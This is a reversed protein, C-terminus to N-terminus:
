ATQKFENYVSELATEMSSNAGTVRTFIKGLKQVTEVQAHSVAEMSMLVRDASEAKSELVSLNRNSKNDDHYFRLNLKKDFKSQLFGQNHPKIGCILVIPLGAMKDVPSPAPNHKTVANQVQVSPMLRNLFSSLIPAFEPNSIVRKVTAVIVKEGWSAILDIALQEELKKHNIALQEDIFQQAIPSPQAPPVNTPKLTFPKDPGGNTVIRVVDPIVTLASFNRHRDPDLVHKMAAVYTVLRNPQGAKTRKIVEEAIMEKERHTWRIREQTM